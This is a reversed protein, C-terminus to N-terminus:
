QNAELDDAGRSVVFIELYEKRKDPDQTALIKYLESDFRIVNETGVDKMFRITFIHSPNESLEVNDFRKQSSGQLDLTVMSAWRKTGIDYTESFKASDIPPPKINRTHIIIRKDMDGVAYKKLRRHQVKRRPM